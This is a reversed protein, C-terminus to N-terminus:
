QPMAPAARLARVLIIAIPLDVLAIALFPFAPTWGVFLLAGTAASTLKSAVIPHVLARHRRVDSGAIAACVAVAAMNAVALALWFDSAVPASSPPLTRLRLLAGVRDLERVTDDPRVLFGAAGIAFLIAFSRLWWALRREPRTLPPSGAIPSVAVAM